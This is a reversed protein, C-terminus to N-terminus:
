RRPLWLRFVTGEPGTKHLVIDGGHARMIEKAITLGLGTGDARNSGAFPEFLHERVAEPVGSATDTVEITVAQRTEWANIAIVGGQEPMAQRANQVLNLLVRFLGDSDAQVMLDPRIENRFLVRDPGEPAVERHLEDVLTHLAFRRVHPTVPQARSFTLTESCLRAARDIAEIIRPTVRKVEPDQSQELRDSLIMASALMNRLDHNIKTVAAGLGALRTKQFLSSRLDQQMRDLEAEVLGIEDSRGSVPLDSEPSEPHRRFAVISETIRRLPRVIMGQLSLYVLFAVMLSLVISLNLIRWSYDVMEYWMDGERLRVDVLVGPEHPSPGIVRIIREGGHWLADFADIILTPPGAARLDFQRDFPPYEGLMLEAEPAQLTVSLVGAQDLLEAELEPPITGDEAAELSLTALHSSAIREELFVKRFRSISPVYILVEGLLVFGVTLVLLRASLSRSTRPPHLSTAMPVDIM